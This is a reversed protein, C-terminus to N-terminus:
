ANRSGSPALGARASLAADKEILYDRVRPFVEEPASRGFLLDSHGYDCSARSAKGIRVLRVEGGWAAAAREVAQPPALRDAEGAIFLAPQTARALAARYDVTGDRSTFTDKALWGALQRAAAGPVNEVVNVLLRRYVQRSVNRPNSPLESLGPHYYGAFPAVMRALVRGFRLTLRLLLGDLRGFERRRPFFAPAGIAVLAAVREPHLACAAMGLLGGQSHGVWLVRDRGSALRVAELAAPVDLRLYDDFSSDATGGPPPTRSAGHGRLDVAFCDFGVEALHASLSFRELGFDLSARNAALGHVLLVPLARPTGRPRRRALTLRFGDRAVAEVLEDETSRVHFRRSWFLYHGAVALVLALAAVTLHIATV